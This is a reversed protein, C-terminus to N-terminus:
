RCSDLNRSCRIALRFVPRADLRPRPGCFFGARRGEAARFAPARLRTEAFATLRAGFFAAFFAVFFGTLFAGCRTWFRGFTAALFRTALVGARDDVLLAVLFAVPLATEMDADSRFVLAAL